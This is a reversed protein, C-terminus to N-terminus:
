FCSVIFLFEASNKIELKKLYQRNAPAPPNSGGFPLDLIEQSATQRRGLISMDPFGFIVNM